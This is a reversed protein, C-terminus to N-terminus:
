WNLRIKILVDNEKTKKIPRSLKTVALLENKNNYLGVSTIYTMPNEVLCTNKIKGKNVGSEIVYTPNNSYNAEASPIRVFYHNTTKHRVNRARM